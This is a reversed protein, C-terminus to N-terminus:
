QKISEQFYRDLVWQAYYNEGDPGEKSYVLGKSTQRKHWNIIAKAYDTHQQYWRQGKAGDSCFSNFQRIWYDLQSPEFYKSLSDWKAQTTKFLGKEVEGSISIYKSKKVKSEGTVEPNEGENAIQKGRPFGEDGRSKKSKKESWRQRMGTVATVRKQIGPSTLIRKKEWNSPSFVLYRVATDIIGELNERPIVWLTSFVTLSEPNSLDLAGNPTSYIKEYLKLIVAYGVLGHLAEIIRFKDDGSLNTDHPFYDLGTKKPRAM